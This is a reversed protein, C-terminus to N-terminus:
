AIQITQLECVDLDEGDRSIRHSISQLDSRRRSLYSNGITDRFWTNVDDVRTASLAKIVLDEDLAGILAPICLVLNTLGSSAHCGELQKFKGFVSEIITSNGIYHKGIPIRRGQEELLVRIKDIFANDCSLSIEKEGSIIKLWDQSIEQHYGVKQVCKIATLSLKSLVSWENLSERYKQIAGINGLIAQCVEQDAYALLKKGWEILDVAALMRAKTRQRPPSLHAIANLKNVQTLSTCFEKFSHWNEDEHLEKKLANNILHTVDLLHILPKGSEILLRTGKKMEQAEDTLVAVVNEVKESAELLAEEIVEGVCSKVIKLTLPEVQDFNPCYNDSIPAGLILLAKQSGMQITADGILIWKGQLKGSRALKFLGIKLLWQRITAHVPTSSWQLSDKFLSL